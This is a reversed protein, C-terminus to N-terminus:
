AELWYLCLKSTHNFSSLHKPWGPPTYQLTWQLWTLITTLSVQYHVLNVLLSTHSVRIKSFKHSSQSSILAQSLKSFKHSSKLVKLVQSLKHSSQSNILVKFATSFINLLCPPCALLRKYVVTLLAWIQAYVRESMRESKFCIPFWLFTNLMATSEVNGRRRHNRSAKVM